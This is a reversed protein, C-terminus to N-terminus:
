YLFSICSCKGPRFFRPIIRLWVKAFPFFCRSSDRPLGRPTNLAYIRSHIFNVDEDREPLVTTMVPITAGMLITAPSLLLGTLLIHVFFHNTESFSSVFLAHFLSPFLVAYSGTALEVFGYIKLLFNRSKIRKSIVGFLAYGLALGLLFIAVIITSSRAQSGVLVALYRQWVVQYGLSCFGTAMVIFLLPNFM